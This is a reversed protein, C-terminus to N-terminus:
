SQREVARAAVAGAATLTDLLDLVRGLDALDREGLALLAAPPRNLIQDATASVQAGASTITVVKARRDDPHQDRRVLGRFELNDVVLTLYPRDINLVEALLRMTTPGTAVQLLAKMRIFSLDLVACAEARHNHQDLVVARLHRWIQAATTSQDDQRRSTM